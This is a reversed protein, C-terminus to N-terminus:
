ARGFVDGREIRRHADAVESLPVRLGIVPRVVGQAILRLSDALQVRSTSVVSLMSLGHLFIQALNLEAREAGLEGTMIWRGRPALSKRVEHFARTGVNDIAVDVGAGGTLARVQEAFRGDQAVVVEDAGYERLRKVKASSTTLAITHAGAARALQVGHIGVGGSAGTVLVTEGLQTRGTDRVANLETGIACAAIAAEEFPIGQPIAAATGESCVVREAYGGDCDHGFFLKRACLTENGARCFACIGCVSRRQTTAIRDGPRFGSVGPGVAEVVGAIEHGLIRPTVLGRMLGKRELLDLRCVGCARVGILVEGYGPTPLAVERQVLVNTDGFGDIM